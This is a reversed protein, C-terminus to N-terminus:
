SRNRASQIPRLAFMAHWNLLGNQIGVSQPPPNALEKVKKEAMLGDSAATVKSSPM